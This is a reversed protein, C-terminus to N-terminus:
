NSFFIWAWHHHWPLIYGNCEIFHNHQPSGGASSVIEFSFMGALHQEGVCKSTLIESYSNVQFPIVQKYSTWSMNSHFAFM